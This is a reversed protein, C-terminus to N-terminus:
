PEPSDFMAHAVDETNGDTVLTVTFGISQLSAAVREASARANAIAPSGDYAPNAVVLAIREEGRAVSFLAMTMLLVAAPLLRMGRIWGQQGRRDRWSKGWNM